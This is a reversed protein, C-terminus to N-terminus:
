RDQAGGDNKRNAEITARILGLHPEPLGEWKSPARGTPANEVLMASLELGPTLALKAALTMSSLPRLVLSQMDGNGGPRITLFDGINGPSYVAGSWRGGVIELRPEPKAEASFTAGPPLGDAFPMAIEAATPGVYVLDELARRAVLNLGRIPLPRGALLAERDGPALAAYARVIERVSDLGEVASNMSKSGARVGLWRELGSTSPGYGAAEAYAGVEALTATAGRRLFRFFTPWLSRPMREATARLPWRPSGILIGDDYGFRLSSQLGESVARLGIAGGTEDDLMTAASDPLALVVEEGSAEVAARVPDGVVNELPDLEPGIPTAGAPTLDRDAWRESGPWRSDEAPEMPLSRTAFTEAMTGEVFRLLRLNLTKGGLDRVLLGLSGGAAAKERISREREILGADVAETTEKMSQAWLPAADFGFGPLMRGPVSVFRAVRSPPLALRDPDFRTLVRAMLRDGPSIARKAMQFRAEVGSRDRTTSARLEESAREYTEVRRPLDDGFPEPEKAFESWARGIARRLETREEGALRKRLANGRELRLNAGDRVWEARVARAVLARLREPTERKLSVFLTENRLEGAVRIEPGGPDRMRAIFAPLAEIRVPPPPPLLM